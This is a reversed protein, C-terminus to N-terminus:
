SGEGKNSSRHHIFFTATVRAILIGDATITASTFVMSQGRRELVPHVEIWQGIRAGVMFSSHLDVTVAIAVDGILSKVYRGLATDALALLLGGHVGGMTNAHQKM